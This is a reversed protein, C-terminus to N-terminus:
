LAFTLHIDEPEMALLDPHPPDALECGRSRYFGVASGSPTASVYLRPVEATRCIRVAEDWLATAVGQRRRRRSVHLIALWGLDPEFDPEVVVIGTLDDGDFAGILHAGRQVIPRTFEVIRHVTHDGTTADPDWSPVDWDVDRSVLRGDIMEYGTTIQESRDIEGLLSVDDPPLHRIEM